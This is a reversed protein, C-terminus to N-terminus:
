SHHQVKCALATFAKQSVVGPAPREALALLTQRAGVPGASGGRSVRLMVLEERVSIPRRLSARAKQSQNTHTHTRARTRAYTNHNALLRELSCYFKVILLRFAERGGGWEQNPYYCHDWFPM